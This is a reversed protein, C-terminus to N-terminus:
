SGDQLTIIAKTWDPWSELVYAVLWTGASNGSPIVILDGGTGAARVVGEVQGKIYIARREGNLNLGDIETLDKFSLGQVQVPVNAITNYVPTQKGGPAVTYGTSSMITALIFPNVATIAGGAIAHLDM